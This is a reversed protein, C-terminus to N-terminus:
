HSFFWDVSDFAKTFDIKLMSVEKKRKSCFHILENAMMISDLTSKGSQFASQTPSVLFSMFSSLRSALIKTFIKFLCNILSIPRFDKILSSDKLKPILTIYVRNVRHLSSPDQHFYNM